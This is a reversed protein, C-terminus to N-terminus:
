NETILQNKQLIALPVCATAGRPIPSSSSPNLPPSRTTLSHKKSCILLSFLLELNQTELKNPYTPSWNLVQHLCCPDLPMTTYIPLLHSAVCRAHTQYLLVSWTTHTHFKCIRLRLYSWSPSSLIQVQLIDVYFFNLLTFQWCRQAAQSSTCQWYTQSSTNDLALIISETSTLMCKCADIM